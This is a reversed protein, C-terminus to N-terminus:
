FVTRDTRRRPLDYWPASTTIGGQFEFHADPLPRAQRLGTPSESSHQLVKETLRAANHWVGSPINPYWEKYEPRLRAERERM